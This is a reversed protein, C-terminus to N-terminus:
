AETITVSEITVQEAPVGTGDDLAAIAELVDLGETVTGFAALDPAPGGIFLYETPGLWLIRPGNGTACLVPPLGANVPARLRLLWLVAPDARTLVIGPATIALDAM